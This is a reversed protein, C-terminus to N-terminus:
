CFRRRLMIIKVGIHTMEFFLKQFLINDLRTMTFNFIAALSLSNQFVTNMGNVTLQANRESLRKKEVDSKDLLEAVHRVEHEANDVLVALRENEEM